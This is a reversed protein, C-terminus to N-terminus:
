RVRHAPLACTSLGATRATLDTRNVAGAKVCAAKVHKKVTDVTIHLTAAIERNTCGRGVLRAVEAERPTLRAAWEPTQPLRTLLEAQRTLLRGLRQMVAIDRAGFASEQEDFLAIGLHVADGAGETCLVAHFGDKYLHRDLFMRNEDTLYPLAQDLVLTRGAATVGYRAVLQALPDWRHYHEIYSPIIRGVRGLSLVGADQFIRGRTPGILLTANRYGFRSALSELVRERLATLSGAGGCEGVVELIREYDSSAVPGGPHWM